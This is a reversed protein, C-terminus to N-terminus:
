PLVQVSDLLVDAHSAWSSNPARMEVGIAESITLPILRTWMRGGGFAGFSEVSGDPLVTLTGLDANGGDAAEWFVEVVGAVTQPWTGGNATVLGEMNVPGVTALLAEPDLPHAFSVYGDGSDIVNWDAPIEACFTETCVLETDGVATADPGGGCATAVLALSALGTILRRM